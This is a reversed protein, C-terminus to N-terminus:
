RPTGGGRVTPSRFRAALPTPALGGADTRRVLGVDALVKTAAETVASVGVPDSAERGWHAGHAAILDHVADRVAEGSLSDGPPTAALVDCLLLAVQKVTANTPFPVDTFSRDPVVLASGEARREVQYGTAAGVAREVRARQGVFYARDADDLDELLLVPDETLRRALREFRARNEGEPTPPYRSSEDLLVELSDADLTRGPDRVLMALRRRDITFLAEDDGQERRSYSEHSGSTHELVGWGCLVELGDAFAARERRERFDVTIPPDVDAGTREVERGLDALAIQRGGRELSALTLLLLLCGRDDLAPWEDVARRRGSVSTPPVRIPRRLGDATPPGAARAATSGVELQYGFTSQLIGAIDREHRRVLAYDPDGADLLPASLLARLARTREERADIEAATM